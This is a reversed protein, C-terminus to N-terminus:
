AGQLSAASASTFSYGERQQLNVPCQLPLVIRFLAGGKTHNGATIRGGHLEVISKSISLGLGTGGSTRNRSSDERYFRRFVNDLAEESLGRGSDSVSIIVNSGTVSAELNVWGGEPTYRLANSVLNMFVEFMREPDIALFLSREPIDVNISVDKSQAQMEFDLAVDQLLECIDTDTQELSLQGAEALSLLRLDKVLRALVQTQRSLNRIEDVTLPVVEYEIADLQGQLITIPTRLEHAIDALYNKQNRYMTELSTAMNNFDNVLERIEHYAFRPAPLCARASLDGKNIRNLAESVNRIPARVLVGIGLALDLGLVAALGLTIFPLRLGSQMAGRLFLVVEQVNDENAFVDQILRSRGRDRLADEDQLLTWTEHVKSSMGLTALPLTVRSQLAAQLFLGIQQINDEDALLDQILTSRAQASLAEDDKLLTFAERVEEDLLRSQQWITLAHIGLVITMFMVITMMVGLATRITIRNM